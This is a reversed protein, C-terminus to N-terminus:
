WTAPSASKSRSTAIACTGCWRRIASPLSATGSASRASRSRPGCRSAPGHERRCARDPATRRQPRIRLRGHVMRGSRAGRQRRHRLAVVGHDVREAAVAAVQMVHEPGFQRVADLIWRVEVPSGAAAERIADFIPAFDQEKWLVVGAAVIIEAYRVNQPPWGSWCAARSSRTIRPAHAAAQRSGGFAEFFRWRFRYLPVSRSIGRHAHLPRTRAADRPEISGELHLHLEAKPMEHLFDDMSSYECARM